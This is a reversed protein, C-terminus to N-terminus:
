EGLSLYIRLILSLSRHETNVNNNPSKHKNVISTQSQSSRLYFRTEAIEPSTQNKRKKQKEEKEENTLIEIQYKYSKYVYM